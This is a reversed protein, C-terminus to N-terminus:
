VESKKVKGRELWEPRKSVKSHALCAREEPDKGKNSGKSALDGWVYGYALEGVEKISRDSHWHGPM